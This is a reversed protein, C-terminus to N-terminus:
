LGIKKRMRSLPSLRKKMNDRASTYGHRGGMLSGAVAAGGTVGGFMSPSIRGPMRKGLIGMLLAALAGGGYGGIGGELTTRGVVRAKDTLSPQPMLFSAMKLHQLASMAQRCERSVKRELQAQDHNGERENIPANNEAIEAAIQLTAIATM